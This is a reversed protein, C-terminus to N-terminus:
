RNSDDAGEDRDAGPRPQGPIKSDPGWRERWMAHLEANPNAADVYKFCHPEGHEGVGAEENCGFFECEGIPASLRGGLAEALAPAQICADHHDEDLHGCLCTGSYVLREVDFTNGRRRREANYAALRPDIEDPQYAM